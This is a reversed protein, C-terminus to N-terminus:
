KPKRRRRRRKETETRETRRFNSRMIMLVVEAPIAPFSHPLRLSSRYLRVIASRAATTTPRAHNECDGSIAQKGLRPRRASCVGRRDSPPSWFHGIIQVAGSGVTDFHARTICSLPKRLTRVILNSVRQDSSKILIKLRLLRVGYM